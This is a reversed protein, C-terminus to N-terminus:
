RSRRNRPGSNIGLSPSTGAEPAEEGVFNELRGRHTALSRPRREREKNTTLRCIYKQFPASHLKKSLAM